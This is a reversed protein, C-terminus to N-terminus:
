SRKRKEQRAKHAAREKRTMQRVVLSGEDIQRQVERLKEKRREDARQKTSKPPM